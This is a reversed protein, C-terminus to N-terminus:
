SLNLIKLINEKSFAKRIVQSKYNEALKVYRAFSKEDKHGSVEKVVREPVGLILSNTILSRRGVDSSLVEFFPVQEQHLSGEYYRSIKVPWAFKVQEGPMRLLIMVLLILLILIDRVPGACLVSSM